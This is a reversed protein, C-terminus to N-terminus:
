EDVTRNKEKRGYELSAMTTEEGSKKKKKKGDKGDDEDDEMQGAFDADIVDDGYAGSFNSFDGGGKNNPQLQAKRSIKALLDMGLDREEEEQEVPSDARRLGSFLSGGKKTAAAKKKPEATTPVYDGADAFIDDDDSSDEGTTVPQQQQQSASEAKKVSLASAAKKTEEQAATQRRAEFSAKVRDLLNLDPFWGDSDDKNNSTSTQEMLPVEWARQRDGPHALCSFAFSSQQLALGAPSVQLRSRPATTRSSQHVFALLDKGLDTKTDQPTWDEIPRKLSEDEAPKSTQAQQQQQQQQLVTDLDDDALKGMERKVRRSLVVDLGKVLHTHAEDGGLYKTMEADDVHKANSDVHEYDIAKGARREEARDRYKSDKKEKKKKVHQPVLRRKPREEEEDSSGDGGGGRRKRKSHRAAENEVAERAIEKTTKGGQAFLERFADNNMM